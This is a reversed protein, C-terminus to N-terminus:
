TLILLEGCVPLFLAEREIMKWLDVPRASDDRERLSVNWRVQGYAIADESRLGESTCPHVSHPRGARLREWAMLLSDDRCLLISERDPREHLSKAAVCHRGRSQRVARCGAM